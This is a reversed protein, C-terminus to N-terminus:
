RTNMSRLTFPDCSESSHEVQIVQENISGLNYPGLQVNETSRDYTLTYSSSGDEEGSMWEVVGNYTRLSSRNVDISISWSRGECNLQGSWEGVYLSALEDFDESSIMRGLNIPINGVLNGSLRDGSQAFNGRLKGDDALSFTISCQSARLGRGVAVSVVGSSLQGTADKPSCDYRGPGTIQPSFNGSNPSFKEVTLALQHEHTLDGGDGEFQLTAGGILLMELALHRLEINKPPRHYIERLAIGRLAPDDAVVALALAAERVSADDSYISANLKGILGIKANLEESMVQSLKEIATQRDKALEALKKASLLDAEVEAVQLAYQKKRLTLAKDHEVQLRTLEAAQAADVEEVVRVTAARAKAKAARSQAAMLEPM